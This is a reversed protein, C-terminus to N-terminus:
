TRKPFLAKIHGIAEGFTKAHYEYRASAGPGLLARFRSDIAGSDDPNFIAIRRLPATGVSGLAYLHRFFSDTEPLSYGIIFIHEAESLHKAAAAWVDSLATHYDAKNWSPPVIVPEADVVTSAHDQFYRVLHSGIPVRTTSRKEGIGRFPPHQLYSALHLPRIKRSVTETAWNLSGHLKLLPVPIHHGGPREIIYDPGLGARYMAIDAAIDYNFSIVAAAQNPFAEKYLHTLLNGFDEYPPPVGINRGETPFTMTVELTKVILEKLAAIAEPIEESSLGPVRQIIRGLELVTFISEINNLDLQAKSHVSQLAGIAAFVREFETRKEQVANSRLLDSAVDLFDSM